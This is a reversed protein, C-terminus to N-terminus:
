VPPFPCQIFCQLLQRDNVICGNSGCGSPFTQNCQLGWSDPSSDSCPCCAFKDENWCHGVPGISGVFSSCIGIDNTTYCDILGDPCDRTLLRCCETTKNCGSTNISGDPMRTDCFIAGSLNVSTGLKAGLLDAGVFCSGGLNAGRFDAGSLNAGRFSSYSLNSGRVNQNKLTSSSSFDCRATYRGPGPTCKTSPYCPSPAEASAKGKARNKKKNKNAKNKRALVADLDPRLLAAGVIAAVATRRSQRSTVGVFVLRALKDFRDHDM